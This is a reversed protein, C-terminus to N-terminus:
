KKAARRRDATLRFLERERAKREMIHANDMQRKNDCEPCLGNLFRITGNGCVPCAPLSDGWLPDAVCNAREWDGGILPKHHRRHGGDIVRLHPDVAGFIESARKM